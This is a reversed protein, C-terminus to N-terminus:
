KKGAADLGEQLIDKRMPTHVDLLISGDELSLSGHWEGPMAYSVDGAVCVRKVDDCSLEFKGKLVYMAQAHDDHKHPPFGAGKAFQLKVMMMKESYGLMSQTVGNGKDVTLIDENEVFM